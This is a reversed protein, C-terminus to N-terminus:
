SPVKITGLHSRSLLVNAAEILPTVAEPDTYKAALDEVGAALQSMGTGIRRTDLQEFSRLAATLDVILNRTVHSHNNGVLPGKHALLGITAATSGICQFISSDIDDGPPWTGIEKLYDEHLLSAYDHLLTHHQTDLSLGNKVHPYVDDHIYWSLATLIRIFMTKPTRDDKIILLFHRAIEPQWPTLFPRINYLSLEWGELLLTRIFDFTTELVSPTSSVIGADAQEIRYALPLLGTLGKKLRDGEWYDRPVSYRRPLSSVAAEVIDKHLERPANDATLSEETVLPTAPNGYYFREMAVRKTGEAALERGETIYMRLLDHDRVNQLSRYIEDRRGLRVLEQTSLTLDRIHEFIRNSETTLRSSGRQLRFAIWASVGVGALTILVGIIGVLMSPTTWEHWASTTVSAQLTM